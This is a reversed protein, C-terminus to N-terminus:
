MIIEDLKNEDFKLSNAGFTNTCVVNSGANFYDTHIKTIVDPHTINWTEPLEGPKLGNAQLLTGMGGDLYVINNKFYEKFNM